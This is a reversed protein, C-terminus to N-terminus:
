AGASYNGLTCPSSPMTCHSSPMTCHSSPMTYHPSPMTCHSNPMTCLSSPMTCHSYTCVSYCVSEGDQGAPSGSSASLSSCISLRRLSSPSSGLVISYTSPDGLLTTTHAKCYCVDKIYPRKGPHHVCRMCACCEQKGALRRSYLSLHSLTLSQIQSALHGPGCLQGSQSLIPCHSAQELKSRGGCAQWAVPLDSWPRCTGARRACWPSPCAESGAM